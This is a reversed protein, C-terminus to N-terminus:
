NVEVSYESTILEANSGLFPETGAQIARLYQSSSLYGSDVLHTLFPLADSTISEIQNGAVYSYVTQAGNTGEYLAWDTGDYSFSSVQSGLPGAGGIAALWIMIEYEYDGSNGASTWLDFAVNVVMDSGTYAWKWTFPISSLSSLTKTDFMYAANAYSKVSYQGGSWSWATRWSLNNGDLNLVETCQSGSGSDQGWLNNYVIYNGIEETDWQGCFEARKELPAALALTALASLGAIFKLQM